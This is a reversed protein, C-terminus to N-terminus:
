EILNLGVSIIRCAFLRIYVGWSTLLTLARRRTRSRARVGYLFVTITNDAMVFPM